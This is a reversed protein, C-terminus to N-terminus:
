VLWPPSGLDPPHHCTIDWERSPWPSCCWGPGDHVLLFPQLASNWIHLWSRALPFAGAGGSGHWGRQPWTGPAVGPHRLGPPVAWRGLPHPSCPCRQRLPEQRARLGETLTPSPIIPDPLLLLLARQTSPGAAVARGALARVGVGVGALRPSACGGNEGPFAGSWAWNWGWLWDWDGAGGQSCGGVM